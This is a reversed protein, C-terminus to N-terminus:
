PTKLTRSPAGRCNPPWLPPSVGRGMGFLSTLGAQASPVRLAVERSLLYGGILRLRSGSRPERKKTSRKAGLACRGLRHAGVRDAAPSPRHDANAPAEADACANTGGGNLAAEGARIEPTLRAAHPQGSGEPLVHPGRHRRKDRRCHRLSSLRRPRRRVTGV